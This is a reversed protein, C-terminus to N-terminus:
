FLEAMARSKPHHKSSESHGKFVLIMIYTELNKEYPDNYLNEKTHIM